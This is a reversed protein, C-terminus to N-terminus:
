KSALHAWPWHCYSALPMGATSLSSSTLNPLSGTVGNILQIGFLQFCTFISKLRETETQEGKRLGRIAEDVDRILDSEAVIPCFSSWTKCYIAIHQTYISLPQKSFSLIIEEINSRSPTNGLCLSNPELTELTADPDGLLLQTCCQPLKPQPDGRQEFTQQVLSALHISAAPGAFRDKGIAYPVM